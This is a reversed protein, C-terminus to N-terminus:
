GNQEQYIGQIRIKLAHDACVWLDALSHFVSQALKELGFELTGVRRKLNDLEDSM